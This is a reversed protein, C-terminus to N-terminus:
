RLQHYPLSLGSISVSKAVSDIGTGLSAHAAQTMLVEGRQAIDEALKCTLNIEDGFMDGEIDLIQGFGIGISAYLRRDSPLLPNVTELREIIAMAAAVAQDTTPFHCYLNDAEAKVLVGGNRTIASEALVRMQFIMLLFRVIGHQQTSRSFGSMDLILVAAAHGFVQEVQAIIEDQAEPRDLMEQLLQDLVARSRPENPEDLIETM